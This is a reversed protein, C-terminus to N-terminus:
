AVAWRGWLRRGFPRRPSLVVSALFLATACLVITAGSPMDYLYSLILGGLSSSVGSVLSLALMGRFNFSLEYGIAAPIVVLASGLVIGVVKVSVILTAAIATLLGYYLFDVPLNDARAMEEDFAMTLIPRFFLVLFLSVLVATLTLIWLDRPTVALINGFLFSFLDSMWGDVLSILAIGLAMAASFFIGIVTDEHIQGKRSVWGILWSVATAFLGGSLLPDMGLHVGIAVGGFASHSVGVGIFALRKLVVFFSVLSCLLGVLLAALLARQMFAFQFMEELM